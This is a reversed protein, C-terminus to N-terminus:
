QAPADEGEPTEGSQRTSFGEDRLVARVRSLFESRANNEWVGLVAQMDQNITANQQLLKQGVETNYFELIDALEEQSFRIAYIRAFQNYLEGKREIFEDYVVQIAQIAADALSPDEQILLRMVDLGLDILTVEYLGAGDSMDVYERAIALHEPAIEQQAQVPAQAALSVTASLLLAAPLNRWSTPFKM